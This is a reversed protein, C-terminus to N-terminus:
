ILMIWAIGTGGTMKVVSATALVASAPVGTQLSVFYVGGNPDVAINSNYELGSNNQWLITQGDASLKTVCPPSTPYAPPTNVQCYSFGYLAGSADTAISGLFSALESYDTGLLFGPSAAALTSSLFALCLFVRLLVISKQLVDFVNLSGPRSGGRKKDNKLFGLEGNRDRRNPM